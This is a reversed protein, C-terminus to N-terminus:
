PAGLRVTEGETVGKDIACRQADCAGLTVERHDGSALRVRHKGDASFAIAGRPVTLAGSQRASGALEVRVSMGPRMKTADANPLSLTVGFARRLSQRNRNTAVPALETVECPLPERPYADLTCTGKAGVAIRGDDVDSLEAKVQMPHTFDPFTVIKM